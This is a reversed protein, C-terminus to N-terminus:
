GGEAIEAQLRTWEDKKSPVDAWSAVTQGAVPGVPGRHSSAAPWSYYTVTGDTNEYWGSTTVPEKTSM